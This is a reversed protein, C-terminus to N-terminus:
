NNSQENWKEFSLKVTIMIDSNKWMADSGETTNGVFYLNTIDGEENMPLCYSYINKNSGNKLKVKKGTDPAVLYIDCDKKVGTDSVEDNVTVLIDDIQVKVDVNSVNNLTINDSFIQERGLLKQPDIHITFEQPMYVAVLEPQTVEITKEETTVNGANDVVRIEIQYSGAKDFPISFGVKSPVALKDTLQVNEQTKLDTIKYPKGNVTCDITDIGSIIHGTDAVDIWLTYPATCIESDYYTIEPATQDILYYQSTIDSINGAKDECHFLVKGFFDQPLTIKPQDFSDVIYVLKDAYVSSIKEIGSSQEQKGDEVTIDVESNNTSYIKDPDSSLIKVDKENMTLEPSCTDKSYTFITKTTIRKGDTFYLELDKDVADETILISDKFEGDKGLRIKNFGNIGLPKIQINSVFVDNGDRMKGSFVYYGADAIVTNDSNEKSEQNEENIESEMENEQTTDTDTKKTTSEETTMEELDPQVTQEQNENEENKPDSNKKQLDLENEDTDNNETTKASNKETSSEKVDTSKDNVSNEQTEPITDMAKNLITNKKTQKGDYNQNVAYGIEVPYQYRTAVDGLEPIQGYNEFITSVLSLPASNKVIENKKNEEIAQQITNQVVQNKNGKKSADKDTLSSTKESDTATTNDNVDTKVQTSDLKLSVSAKNNEMQHNDAARNQINKSPQHEVPTRLSLVMTLVVVFACVMEAIHKKAKWSLNKLNRNKKEKRWKKM